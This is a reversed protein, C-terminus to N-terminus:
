LDEIQRGTFNIISLTAKCKCIRNQGKQIKNHMVTSIAWIHGCDGCIYEWRRQRRGKHPMNHTATANEYGFERMIEKFYKGHMDRRGSPLFRDKYGARVYDVYHAVEHAITEHNEPQDFYRTNFELWMKRGQYVFYGAYGSARDTFKVEIDSPVFAINCYDIVLKKVQDKTM